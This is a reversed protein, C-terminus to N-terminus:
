EEEEQPQPDDTQGGTEPRTEVPMSPDVFEGKSAGTTACGSTTPLSIASGLFLLIAVKKM